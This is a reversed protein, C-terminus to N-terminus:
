AVRAPREPIYEVLRLSGDEGDEVYRVLREASQPVNGTRLFYVAPDIAPMPPTNTTPRNPTITRM